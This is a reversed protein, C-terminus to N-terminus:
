SSSKERETQSSMRELTILFSLSYVCVCKTHTQDCERERM